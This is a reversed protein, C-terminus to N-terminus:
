WPRSRARGRAPPSAASRRSSDASGSLTRTPALCLGAPEHGPARLDASAARDRAGHRALAWAVHERVLPSPDDARAELAAVIEPTGRRTASGSRSTGRGASTASGGSRAAKSGRDFEAETWAFLTVLDAADLGNRVAFDTKARTRRSATGRAASSAITAATSAIASSRDCRRPFAARFSSRSTRSAAARTSSTRRSSPARRASTSARAAPEATRRKRRAHGAAAPRHLDRGPLVM